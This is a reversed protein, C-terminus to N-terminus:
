LVGMLTLIEEGGKKNFVRLMLYCKVKYKYGRERKRKRLLFRDFTIKEIKEINRYLRFL